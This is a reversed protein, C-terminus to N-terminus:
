HTCQFVVVSAYACVCVYVCVVSIHVNSYLWVRKRACVYVCWVLTYMPICGCVRICVCTCM